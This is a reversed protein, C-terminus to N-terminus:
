VFKQIEESIKLILVQFESLKALNKRVCLLCNFEATDLVIPTYFM